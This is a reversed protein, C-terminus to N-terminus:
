DIISKYFREIDDGGLHPKFTGTKLDLIIESEPTYHYFSDV